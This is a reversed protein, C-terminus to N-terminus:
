YILEKQSLWIFLKEMKESTDVWVDVVIALEICLHVISTRGVIQPGVIVMEVIALGAVILSVDVINAIMVILYTEMGELYCWVVVGRSVVVIQGDQV